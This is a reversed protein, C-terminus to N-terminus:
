LLRVFMMSKARDYEAASMRKKPSVIKAPIGVALYPERTVDNERGILYFSVPNSNTSTYKAKFVGDPEGGSSTGKLRGYMKRFHSTSGCTCLVVLLVHLIADERSIFYWLESDDGDVLRGGLSRAVSDRLMCVGSKGLNMSAVTSMDFRYLTKSEKAMSVIAANPPGNSRKNRDRSMKIRKPPPSGSQISSTLISHILNNLIFDKTVLPSIQDPKSYGAWSSMVTGELQNKTIFIRYGVGSVSDVRFSCRGVGGMPDNVATLALADMPRTAPALPSTSTLTSHNPSPAPPAPLNPPAARKKSRKKGGANTSSGGACVKKVLDVLEPIGNLRSMYESHRNAAGPRPLMAVKMKELLGPHSAMMEKTVIGQSFRPNVQQSKRGISFKEDLREDKEDVLGDWILSLPGDFCASDRRALEIPSLPPFTPPGLLKCQFKVLDGLPADDGDAFAVERLMPTLMYWRPESDNPDDVPMMKRFLPAGATWFDYVTSTRKAECAINEAVAETLHPQSEMDRLWRAIASLTVSFKARRTSGGSKKRDTDQPNEDCMDSDLYAQMLESKDNGKQNHSVSASIVAFDLYFAPILGLLALTDKVHQVSFVGAFRIARAMKYIDGQTKDRKEKTTLEPQNRRHWNVLTWIYCCNNKVDRVTFDKSLFNMCRPSPGGTATGAFMVLLQIVYQFLGGPLSASDKRDWNDQMFLLATCLTYIGCMSGVVAVIEILESGVDLGKFKGLSLLSGVVPSLFNGQKNSTAKSRLAINVLREEKIDWTFACGDVGVGNLFYDQASAGPLRHSETTRIRDLYTGCADTTEGSARVRLLADSISKRNYFVLCVRWWGDDRRVIESIVLSGSLAPDNELDAHRKVRNGAKLEFAALTFAPFRIKTKDTGNNNFVDDILDFHDRYESHYSLFDDQCFDIGMAAGIRTGIELVKRVWPLLNGGDDVTDVLLRPITAGKYKLNLRKDTIPATNQGGAFGWNWQLNGRRRCASAQKTDGVLTDLRGGLDIQDYEEDLGMAEYEPTGVNCTSVTQHEGLLGIPMKSETVRFVNHPTGNEKATTVRMVMEQTTETEHEAQPPPSLPLPHSQCVIPVCVQMNGFRFPNTLLFQAFLHRHDGQPLNGGRDQTDVFNHKGM